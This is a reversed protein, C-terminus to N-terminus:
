STDMRNARIVTSKLRNKRAAPQPDSASCVGVGVSVDVGKGVGTGCGVAVGKGRGVEVGTGLGVEVAEAVRM